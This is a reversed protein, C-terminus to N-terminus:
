KNNEELKVEAWLKKLEIVSLASMSQGQEVIKQEVSRFRREFKLCGKRAAEEADVNLFRALNVSAFILDGVEDEIAEQDTSKAANKVEDIEEYLKEYVDDISEWEFGVRAARRQIKQARTLAPLAKIIGDLESSVVSDQTSKKEREKRKHEDWAITQQEVSDIKEDAFVHPHRRILKETIAMAVDNFDFLGKENAMQAYFVIQFLLDGLESRLEDYDKNDIADAVEYSEELTYPVLSAFTQEQDWPCGSDPDRLRQMVKLLQQLGNM